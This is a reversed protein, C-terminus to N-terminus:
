FSLLCLTSSIAAQQKWLACHFLLQCVLMGTSSFVTTERTQYSCLRSPAGSWALFDCSFYTIMSKFHIKVALGRQISIHISCMLVSNSGCPLIQMLLKGVVSSIDSDLHKGPLVLTSDQSTAIRVQKRDKFMARQKELGWMVSHLDHQHVSSCISCSPPQLSAELLSFSSTAM